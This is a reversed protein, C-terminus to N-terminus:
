ARATVVWEQGRVGASVTGGLPVLRERMGVLGYGGDSTRYQQGPVSADIPNTVTLVVDGDAYALVVDIPQEPAHKAANVLAEGAVRVLAIAIESSVPRVSGDVTFAVPVGARHREVLAAIEEDLPGADARLGKVAHHTERLGDRATRQLDDLLKLASEVDGLDALVARLVELQIGILGLSGALVDHVERAMRAREAHM